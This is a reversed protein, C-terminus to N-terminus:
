VATKPPTGLASLLSRLAEGLPSENDVVLPSFPALIRALESRHEYILRLLDNEGQGHFRLGSLIKMLSQKAEGLPETEAKSQQSLSALQTTMKHVDEITRTADAAAATIGEIFAGVDKTAAASREALKRVEEAVLGFGKGQTGARSAEIAANLALINTQSAVDDLLEVIQGIEESRVELVKLKRVIDAVAAEQRTMDQAIKPGLTQTSEAAILISMAAYAMQNTRQEVTELLANVATALPPPVDHEVVRAMLNGNQAAHLIALLPTWDHKDSM